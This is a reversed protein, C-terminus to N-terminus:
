GNGPYSGRNSDPEPGHEGAAAVAVVAAPLRYDTQRCCTWTRQNGYFVVATTPVGDTDSHVCCAAFSHFHAM